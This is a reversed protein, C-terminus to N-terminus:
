LCASTMWSLGSRMQDDDRGKQKPGWFLFLLNWPTSVTSGVIILLLSYVLHYMSYIYIHITLGQQGLNHEQSVKIAGTELLLKYPWAETTHYASHGAHFELGNRVQTLHPLGALFSNDLHGIFMDM